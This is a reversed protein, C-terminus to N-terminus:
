TAVDADTGVNKPSHLYSYRCPLRFAQEVTRRLGSPVTISGFEHPPGTSRGFLGVLADAEESSVVVVDKAVGSGALLRHIEAAKARRNGPEQVVVMLDVDSDPRPNGRAHSGFLIVKEPSIHEVITRVMADIAASSAM